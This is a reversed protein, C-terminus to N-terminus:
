AHAYRRKLRKYVARYILWSQGISVRRAEGRLRKAVTGRM